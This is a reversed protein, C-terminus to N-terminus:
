EVDPIQEGSKQAIRVRSGDELRKIIIRTPEDTQPDVVMLKSVHLPTSALNVVILSVSPSLTGGNIKSISKNNQGTSEEEKKEADKLIKEAENTGIQSLQMVAKKIIKKEIDTYNEDIKAAHILLSATKSFIDIEKSVKEKKKFFNFM